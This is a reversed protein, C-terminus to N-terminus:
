LVRGHCSTNTKKIELATDTFSGDYIIDFSQESFWAFMDEDYVTIRLGVGRDLPELEM